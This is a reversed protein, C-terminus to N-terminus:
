RGFHAYWAELLQERNEDVLTRIYTVEHGRFGRNSALAIPDLWFKLISKDRRVHIHPPENNELSYFFFRYPGIRMVEPM